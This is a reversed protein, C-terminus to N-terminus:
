TGETSVISEDRLSPPESWRTEGNPYWRIEAQVRSGSAKRLTGRGEDARSALADGTRRRESKEKAVEKDELAECNRLFQWAGRLTATM